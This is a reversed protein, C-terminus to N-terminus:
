FKNHGQDKYFIKNEKHEPTRSLEQNNIISSNIVNFM